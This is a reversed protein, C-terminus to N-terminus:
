PSSAEEKKFILRYQDQLRTTHRMELAIAEKEAITLTNFDLTDIFAHRILSLTLPKAFLKGLIRNAYRIYSNSKDFPKGDAKVFLYERPRKELSAHLEECLEDPLLKKFIGHTSSTKYESLVLNCGTKSIHIYNKEHKSPVSATKYIRVENFDARLPYIYTYMGLLLREESGKELGDRKKVLEKFPVYGKTQKESPENKKYREEVLKDVKSFAEFWAKYAEPLQERLGACHRFMSLAISLYAKKSTVQEYNKEIWAISKKFDKIVTFFDCKLQNQLHRIRDNYMTKTVPSLELGQIITTFDTEASCVPGGEVM